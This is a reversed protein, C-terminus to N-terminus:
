APTHSTAWDVDMIPLSGEPARRGERQRISISAAAMLPHARYCQVFALLGKKTADMALLLPLMLQQTARSLAITTESPAEQKQKGVAAKKTM